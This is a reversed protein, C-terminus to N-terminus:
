QPEYPSRHRARWRRNGEAHCLLCRRAGSRRLSTNVEDFPHGRQCYTRRAWSAAIGGGRMTNERNTVPELHAPNVCARNRCLHDLQLGAPIPGVFHEYAARHALFMRGTRGGIRLYGYGYGNMAATWIMCDTLEDWVVKAEFRALAKADM